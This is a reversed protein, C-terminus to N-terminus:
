VKRTQLRARTHDPLCPWSATDHRSAVCLSHPFPPGNDRVARGRWRGSPRSLSKGPHMASILPVSDAASADDHSWPWLNANRRAFLSSASDRQSWLLLLATHKMDHIIKDVDCLPWLGRQDRRTCAQMVRRTCTVLAVQNMRGCGRRFQRRSPRLVSVSHGEKTGVQSSSTNRPRKMDDDIRAQNASDRQVDGHRPLSRSTQGSHNSASAEDKAGADLM